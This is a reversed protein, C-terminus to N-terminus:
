IRHGAWSSADCCFPYFDITNLSYFPTFFRWLALFVVLHHSMSGEYAIRREPSRWYFLHAQLSTQSITWLAGKRWFNENQTESPGQNGRSVSYSTKQKTKEHKRRRWPLESCPLWHQPSDLPLSPWRSAQTTAGEPVLSLQEWKTSGEGSALSQTLCKM